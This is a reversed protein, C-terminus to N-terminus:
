LGSALLSRGGAQAKRPLTREKKEGAAAASQQAPGAFPWLSTDWGATDHLSGQEARIQGAGGSQEQKLMRWSSTAQCYPQAEFPWTPAAPRSLISHVEGGAPITVAGALLRTVAANYAVRAPGDCLHSAATPAGVGQHLDSM